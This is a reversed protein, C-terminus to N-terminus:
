RTAAIQFVANKLDTVAATASADTALLPRLSELAVVPIADRDSDRDGIEVAVVRGDQMLPGGPLRPLKELKATPHEDGVSLYGGSEQPTPNFLNVDPFGAFKVIGPRASAAVPLPTFHAGTVRLLTLGSAADARVIEAKLPQGAGSQVQIDTADTVANSATVLLDPAIAFAAAYRTGHYNQVKPANADPATPADAPPTVPTVPAAVTAALTLQDTPIEEPWKPKLEALTKQAGDLEKQAKSREVNLQDIQKQFADKKQTQNNNGETYIVADKQRQTDAIQSDLRRIQASSDRATSQAENVTTQKKDVDAAPLWDIGWRKEGPRTAELKTNLKKYAKVADAYLASKIGADEAQALAIGLANAMQEDPPTPHADFYVLIHKAAQMPSKASVREAAVALM